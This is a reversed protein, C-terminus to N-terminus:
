YRSLSKKLIEKVEEVLWAPEILKVQNGLRLISQTLELNPIVHIEFITESNHEHTVKQTSHLPLAKLYKAQIVDAQIVIRETKGKSYNLGVISDLETPYEIDKQEFKETLIKLNEIRDIGFTFYKKGVKAILYWRNEHRKLFGPMVKFSNNKNSTFNQYMFQVWRMQAIANILVKLNQYGKLFHIPEFKIKELLFKQNSISEQILESTLSMEIFAMFGKLTYSRDEDVFYFDQDRHYTIEIGFENRMQEIDRQLTRPSVRMDFVELYKQLAKFNAKKDNQIKELILFYRKLVSQKAM